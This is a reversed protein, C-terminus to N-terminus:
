RTGPRSCGTLSNTMRLLGGRGTVFSRLWEEDCVERLGVEQEEGGIDSIRYRRDGSGGHGEVRLAGDGFEFFEAGESGVFVARLADGPGVGPKLGAFPEGGFELADGDFVMVVCGAVVPDSEGAGRFFGEEEAAMEIGDGIAAPEVAGEVDEGGELDKAAEGFFKM